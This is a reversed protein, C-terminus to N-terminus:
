KKAPVVSEDQRDPAAQRDANYIVKQPKQESCMDSEYISRHLEGKPSLCAGANVSM